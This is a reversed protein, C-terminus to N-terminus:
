GYESKGYRSYALRGQGRVCHSACPRFSCTCMMQPLSVGFQEVRSLQVGVTLSPFSSLHTVQWSTAIYCGGSYLVYFVSHGIAAKGRGVQSMWEGMGCM